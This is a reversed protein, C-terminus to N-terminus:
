AEEKEEVEFTVEGDPWLGIAISPGGKEKIKQAWMHLTPIPAARWSKRDSPLLYTRITVPHFDAQRAFEAMSTCESLRYLKQAYTEKPKPTPRSM